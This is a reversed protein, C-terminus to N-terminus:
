ALQEIDNVYMYEELCYACILKNHDYINEDLLEKRFKGFCYECTAYKSDKDIDIKNEHSM